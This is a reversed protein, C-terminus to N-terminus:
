LHINNKLNALVRNVISVDLEFEWLFALVLVPCVWVETKILTDGCLSGILVHIIPSSGPGLSLFWNNYPLQINSTCTSYRFCPSLKMSNGVLANNVSLWVALGLLWTRITVLWLWFGLIHNCLSPLIVWYSHLKQAVLISCRSTALQSFCWVSPLSDVSSKIYPLAWNNTISCLSLTLLIWVVQSVSPHYASSPLISM